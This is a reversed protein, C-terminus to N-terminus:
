VHSTEGYYAAPCWDNEVQVYRRLLEDLHDRVPEWLAIGQASLVAQLVETNCANECRLASPAHSLHWREPAVGGNDKSYPRFFGYSQDCAMREDLWCHLPDFMGGAAVEAQSLQLQYGEPLAAADFVDLDSGWHHRSTGPLASFRMIAHVKDSPALARLEVVDGGDGYVPRAGSAKGNWIACQREFSRFSSAIALDFGAALADRQLAAFAAAAGAQLLHGCTTAVLHSEDQGTLQQVTLTFTQSIGEEQEGFRFFYRSSRAVNNPLIGIKLM